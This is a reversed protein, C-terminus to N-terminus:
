QCPCGSSIRLSKKQIEIKESLEEKKPAEPKIKVLMKAIDNFLVDVGKNTLASTEYFSIGIEKAKKMGEEKSVQREDELDVKCGVLVKLMGKNEPYNNSEAAWKDINEFSTKNTVDYCILLCHTGKYFCASIARFREQGATDWLQMKIREGEVETSKTRFDCGITSIYNRTFVDDAYRMLLSTKGVRSDGAITLKFFRQLKKTSM